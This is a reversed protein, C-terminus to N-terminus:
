PAPTLLLTMQYLPDDIASVRWLELEHPDVAKLTGLAREKQISKKLDSVDGAATVKFIIGEGEILCNLRLTTPMTAM